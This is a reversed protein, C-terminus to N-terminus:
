QINTATNTADSCKAQMSTSGNLWLSPTVPNNNTDYFLLKVAWQPQNLRPATTTFTLTGTLTSFGTSNVAISFTNADIITAVVYKGAGTNVPTWNGTAGTININPRSNLNFGHSASTFVVATANTAATISIPFSPPWASRSFCEYVPNGGSFGWVVQAPNPPPL